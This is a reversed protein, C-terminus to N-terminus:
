GNSEPLVIKIGISNAMIVLQDAQGRLALSALIYADKNKVLGQDFPVPINALTQKSSDFKLIVGKNIGGLNIALIDDFGEGELISGDLRQYRGFYVNEIGKQANLIDQLSNDSFASIEAEGDETAVFQQLRRSSLEGQSLKGLGILINKLSEEVQTPNTFNNRYAGDPQWQNLVSRLQLALLRVSALLYQGRREPNYAQGEKLYDTFPREGAGQASWDEGWLLFEIVHFGTFIADKQSLQILLSDTIGPYQAPTNIVGAQANGAVYDIQAAPIPWGDLPGGLSKAYQDIPGGYFRFAETQSYVARSMLWAQKCSDLGAASPVSVFRDVLNELNEVTGVLDQYNAQVLDAYHDVVKQKLPALATDEPPKCSFVLVSLFIASFRLIM